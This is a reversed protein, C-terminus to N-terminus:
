SPKRGICVYLPFYAKLGLTGAEEQARSILQQFEDYPVRLRQTLPYLALAPLMQRTSELNAAGIDQARPETPWGSLPLPIMRADVHDMGAALLLEKLRTGVRLDKKDNLSQMFKTSWQRLAHSETLSGNDSQVNFYMEVMQVWSGPKLVRKIDRIYSPWRDRDIGTALMRSHVLDFNDSPFTFSRNLDDVQFWLNDPAFDPSMQPSIDVGIVECQPYQEAVQVAWAGTGHGCDLIRKPNGNNPLPPFILRDDFVKDFVRHQLELREVEDDDVPQFCINNDISYSQFDRGHVTLLQLFKEDLDETQSDPSTM